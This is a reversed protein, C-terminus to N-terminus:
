TLRKKWDGVKIKEDKELEGRRRKEKQANLVKIDLVRVASDDGSWLQHIKWDNEDGNEDRFRGHIHDRYYEVVRPSVRFKKPDFDLIRLGAIAM